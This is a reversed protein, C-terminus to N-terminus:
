EVRLRAVREMDIAGLRVGMDILSQPLARIEDDTLPPAEPKPAPRTMPAALIRDKTLRRGIRLAKDRLECARPMYPETKAWDRSAQDLWDAPIDACDEALLAIRAAHDTEDVSTRPPFRLGLEAVIKM